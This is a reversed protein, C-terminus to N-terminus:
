APTTEPISLANLGHTRDPMFCRLFAVDIRFFHIGQLSNLHWFSTIGALVPPLEDAPARSLSRNRTFLRRFPIQLRAGDQAALHLATPKSILPERQGQLAVALWLRFPAEDAADRSPSEAKSKRQAAQPGHTRLADRNPRDSSAYTGRTARCWSRRRGVGRSPHGPNMRSLSTDMRGSVHRAAHLICVLSLLLSVKRDALCGCKLQTDDPERLLSARVAHGQRKSDACVVKCSNITGSQRLSPKFM